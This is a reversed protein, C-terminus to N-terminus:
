TGDKKTNMGEDKVKHCKLCEKKPPHTKKMPAKKEAGHCDLCVKVDNLAIHNSDLPIPPPPIRRGSIVSLLALVAVVFILFILTSKM